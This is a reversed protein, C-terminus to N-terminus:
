DNYQVPVKESLLKRAGLAVILISIISAYGIIKQGTAQIMLGNRTSGGPGYLILFVYGVLMLSYVGFVFAYNNPFSKERFISITYLITAVPLLLFAWFVFQNHLDILLNAPTFAVGIFGIGSLIGFLSGARTLYKNGKNNIFFRPFVICFLILGVGAGSMAIFFLVASLPNPQGYAVTLGLESFFNLFFSYGDATRDSFNGGPYFFMAVFTLIVFQTTTYIVGSYLRQDRQSAQNTM